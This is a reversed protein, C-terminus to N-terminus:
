SIHEEFYLNLQKLVKEDIPPDEYEALLAQWRLKARAISDQRGSQMWKDVSQRDCLEPEWFESRCREVTHMEMLFNGTHGVNEIVEFALNEPTIQMGKRYHRVMGCIEDDLVFKEYSFALYGNLIGASHLVFDVGSNVTTLLSFMSEFGAQNDACNSDTLSGGARSPFGYYPAMQAHATVLLNLEPSGIALAGTRMEINTSTSGYLIPSGPNILQTLVIGGLVEANQQVLVGGLTIPGTSGAMILSAIIVPQGYQAYTMLAESMEKSFGLPSIPNILGVIVAESLKDGFIIRAMEMSHLAGLKGETSGLYPKDSHLMTTHLMYLHALNAPIDGPEVLLFGSVDQNPLSQALCILNHYDQMTAQRKGVEADVIFPAGYAPAFVPEGNGITVNRAPNRAHITFRSPVTKLAEFIQSEQMFVKGAETKYGHKKFVEVAAEDKFQIGIKELVKMSNQHINEIEEKTLVEILNFAM